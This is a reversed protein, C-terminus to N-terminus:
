QLFEVVASVISFEPVQMVLHGKGSIEAQIKTDAAENKALYTHQAAIRAAGPTLGTINPHLSLKTGSINAVVVTVKRGSRFAAAVFRPDNQEIGVAAAGPPVLSLWSVFGDAAPRIRGEPDILGLSDHGWPLDQLQWYSLWDAGDSILKLAEASVAVAFDRTDSAEFVAGPLRQAPSAQFPPQGWRPNVDNFETIFLPLPKGTAKVDARFEEGLGATDPAHKTDWDHVSVAALSGMAGCQALAALFPPAAQLSGTGPGEIGVNGLGNADLATRVQVVMKAYDCPQWQTSWTGEPENDPEVFRVHFGLAKAHLVAAAVYRAYDETHDPRAKKGLYDIGDHFWHKETRWPKPVEWVVLHVEINLSNLESALMAIAADIGKQEPRYASLISHVSAASDLADDRVKGLNGLRVYRVGLDHLVRLRQEHFRSSVWIQTGLRSFHHTHLLDISVTTDSPAFSGSQASGPSCAIALCCISIICLFRKGNLALSLLRRMLRCGVNPVTGFLTPWVPCM